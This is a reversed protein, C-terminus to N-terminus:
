WTLSFLFCLIPFMITYLLYFNFVKFSMVDNHLRGILESAEIIKPHSEYWAFVEDSAITDMGVVASRAILNYTSTVIGNKLYEEFSAPIWYAEM